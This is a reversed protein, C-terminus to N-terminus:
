KNTISKIVILSQNNISEWFGYRTSLYFNPTVRPNPTRILEKFLYTRVAVPEHNSILRMSSDFFPETLIRAIEDEKKHVFLEVFIGTSSTFKQDPTLFFLEAQHWTGIPQPYNGIPQSFWGFLYVFEYNLSGHNDVLGRHLFHHNQQQTLHIDLDTPLSLHQFPNQIQSVVGDWNRFLQPQQTSISLIPWSNTIKLDFVKRGISDAGFGGIMITGNLQQAM